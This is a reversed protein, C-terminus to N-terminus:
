KEVLSVDDNSSKIVGKRELEQLYDDIEGTNRRLIRALSDRSTKGYKDLVRVIATAVATNAPFLLDNM